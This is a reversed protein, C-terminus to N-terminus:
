NVGNSARRLESAQWAMAKPSPPDRRFDFSPPDDSGQWAWEDRRLRVFVSVFHLRTAGFKDRRLQVCVSAWTEGYNEISAAQAYSSSLHLRITACGSM